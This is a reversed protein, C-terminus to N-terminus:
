NWLIRSGLMLGHAKVAGACFEVVYCSSLPRKLVIKNPYINKKIEVVLGKNDINSKKIKYLTM